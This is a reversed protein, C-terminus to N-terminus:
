ANPLTCTTAVSMGRPTSRELKLEEFLQVCEEINSRLRVLEQSPEEDANERELFQYMRLHSRLLDVKMDHGNSYRISPRPPRIQNTFRVDYEFLLERAAIQAQASGFYPLCFKSGRYDIWGQLNKRDDRSPVHALHFIIWLNPNLKLMELDDEHLTELVRVVNSFKYESVFIQIQATAFLLQKFEQRTQKCALLLGNLANPKKPKFPRLILLSEAALEQYIQNRIEAPLGLFSSQSTNSPVLAQEDNIKTCKTSSKKGLRLVRKVM